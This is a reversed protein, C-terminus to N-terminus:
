LQFRSPGNGAPQEGTVLLEGEKLGQLVEASLRNRVGVTVAREAVQGDATMVRATFEGPKAGDVTSAKLAPLPVALVNNAAATVFVVQATMQPMLEGDANDVDFLM